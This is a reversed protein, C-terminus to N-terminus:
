FFITFFISFLIVVRNPDPRAAKNRIPRAVVKVLDEMIPKKSTNGTYIRIATAIKM